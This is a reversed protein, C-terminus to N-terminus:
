GGSGFGGSSGFGGRSVSSSSFSSRGSTYASTRSNYSPTGRYSQSVSPVRTYYRSSAVSYHYSPSAYYSGGYVHYGYPPMAMSRGIFYWMFADNGIGGGNGGNSYNNTIQTNPQGNSALATGPQAPATRVPAAACKSEEVHNGEKDVCIQTPEGTVQPTYEEEKKSCAMLTAAALSLVLPIRLERKM